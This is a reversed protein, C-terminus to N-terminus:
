IDKTDIWIGKDNKQILDFDNLWRNFTREPVQKAEPPLAGALLAPSTFVGPTEPHYALALRCGQGAVTYSMEMLAGQDGFIPM